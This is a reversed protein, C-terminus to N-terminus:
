AAFKFFPAPHYISKLGGNTALGNNSKLDSAITKTRLYTYCM